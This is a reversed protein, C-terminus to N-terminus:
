DPIASVISALYDDSNSFAAKYADVSNKPVYINSLKKTDFYNSFPHYIFPPTECLFTVTVLSYPYEFAEIGISEVSAPITLSPLQKCGAFASEGITKVGENITLSTLGQCSRFARHGISEVSGPITLSSMKQCYEFASANITKVGDPIILSTMGCGAFSEEEITEISGPLILTTLNSCYAFAKKSISNVSEPITLSTLSSCSSFAREGIAKVGNQITLSSLSSCGAFTTLEISELSGPISVSILGTCGEFARQGISEVGNPILASKLSYCHYFASEGISKLGEQMTLSTLNECFNFAMSEIKEVGKNITVSALGSCSSFANPGISKVGGPITLSSLSTCSAFASTGISEVSEPITVSTLNTCRRFAGSEIKEVGEKITVSTLGTFGSFLHAGIVFVNEPIVLDHIVEGKVYFHNIKDGFSSSYLPNGYPNDNSGIKCKFWLDLDEIYLNTLNTCGYFSGNLSVIGPISISTLNVCDSFAYSGIYNVKEPIDISTLSKCGEFARSQITTISSPLIISTMKDWDKFINQPIVTVGEFYQFEDFSKYSTLGGFVGDISKAARAEKISLEGDNNTDFAAVLKAKLKDDAFKIIKNAYASQNITVTRSLKGSRLTVTGTRDTDGTGASVKIIVQEKSLAKTEVHSLWSKASESINVTYDVNTTVNITINTEPIDVSFERKDVELYDTQAQRIVVSASMDGDKQKFTISGERNDYTENKSISFIYTNTSLAKTSILKIWGKCAEPIVVDFEVNYKVEVEITTAEISLDYESQTVLVGYKEDQKITITGGLNGNKQKVNVKTERQDFTDNEAVELLIERTSLGKTQIHKVWDAEPTVELEVNSNVKITLTQKENSVNYKTTEPMFLGDLQSQKITVTTSLSGGDEKITVKGERGDYAKNEAIDLVVTSTTLSKTTKYKVWGKCSEDVEVTFKVNAQVPIELQQAASSVEYSTQPVIFGNGSEQSVSVRSTMDDCIFTVTCSRNEYTTNADFTISVKTNNANDGSSPSVHCWSQDSSASWAKNATLTVM